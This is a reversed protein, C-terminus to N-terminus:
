NKPADKKMDKAKDDMAKAPAAPKDTAKTAAGAKDMGKKDDGKAMAPEKTMAKDSKAADAAPKAAAKEAAPKTTRGGINIEGKIADFTADGIGNVKKLDELSKFPGNAKRYDVIAQAKVPGVGKLKDLEAATATNINVAGFALRCMAFVMVLVLMLRKM